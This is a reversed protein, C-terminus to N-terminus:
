GQRHGFAKVLAEALQGGVFPKELVEVVNAHRKARERLSATLRGSYLVAPPSDGRDALLDLLQLGTMGNIENDLVLCAESFDPAAGLFAEFSPYPVAVYGISTLLVVVSDRTAEDDEIVFVLHQPSDAWEDGSGDDDSDVLMTDM